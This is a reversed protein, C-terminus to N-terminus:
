PVDGGTLTAVTSILIQSDRNDGNRCYLGSDVTVACRSGRYQLYRDRTLLAQRRGSAFRADAASNLRAAVDGPDWSVARTPDAVGPLPGACGYSGDDQMTCEIGLPTTFWVGREDVIGFRGVDDEGVLQEFDVVASAEAFSSAPTVWAAFSIAAISIVTMVLRLRYHRLMQRDAMSGPKPLPSSSGTRAESVIPVATTPRRM